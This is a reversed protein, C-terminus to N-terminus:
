LYNSNDIQSTSAGLFRLINPHEGIFIMIKIETLLTKFSLVDLSTKPIKIAVDDDLYSLKGKTVISFNGSGLITNSDAFIFM